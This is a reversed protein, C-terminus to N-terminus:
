GFALSERAVDIANRPEPILLRDPEPISGDGFACQHLEDLIGDVIVSEQMLYATSPLSGSRLVRIEDGLLEIQIMASGDRLFFMELIYEDTSPQNARWTNRDPTNQMGMLYFMLFLRLGGPKLQKARISLLLTTGAALEDDDGCSDSQEDYRRPRPAANNDAGKEDDGNNWFQKFIDFFDGGSLRLSSTSSSEGNEANCVWGRSPSPAFAATMTGMLLLFITLLALSHSPSM